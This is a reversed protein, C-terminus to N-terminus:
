AYGRPFADQMDPEPLGGFAAHQLWPTSKADTLTNLRDLVRTSDTALGHELGVFDPFHSFAQWWVARGALYSASGARYAYSVSREFDEAGPPRRDRPSM